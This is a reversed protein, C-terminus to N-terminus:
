YSRPGSTRTPPREVHSEGRQSQIPAPGMTRPEGMAVVKGGPPVYKLHQDAMFLAMAMDDHAAAGFQNLEHCLQDILERTREGRYPFIYEKNELRVSLGATRSKLQVKHIYSTNHSRIPLDLEEKAHAAYYHQVGVTEVIVIDPQHKEYHYRAASLWGRPTLGRQRWVEAIQREGEPTLGITACAYYDSDKRRADEPDDIGAVDWAQVVYELGLDHAPGMELDMGKERAWQLWNEPVPANEDSMPMNRKDRDYASRNQKMLARLRRAPWLEPWRSKFEGNEKYDAREYKTPVYFEPHESELEGYLDGFHKRTGVMIFPTNAERCGGLTQWFWEKVKARREPTGTNELTLIDDCIIVDARMGTVGSGIGVAELTADVLSRNKRQQITFRTDNWPRRSQFRGFEQHLKTNMELENRVAAVRTQAQGKTDSALKIRIDPNMCMLWIPLIFSFCTSKAFDKPSKLLFNQGEAAIQMWEHHFPKPPVPLKWLGFEVAFNIPDLLREQAKTM